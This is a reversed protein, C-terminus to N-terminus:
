EDPWVPPRKEFFAATGEDHEPTLFHGVMVEGAHDYAADLGMDREDQMARKGRAIAGPARSALRAAWDRVFGPLEDAPMVRNVLGYERATAADLTDGSLAMEMAHKPALSRSVAVMPTSCFGGLNVGPTCFTARDSVFALDASAVIQCGAATALGDVMAIVPKPSRVIAKMLASCRSFLDTFYARGGDADDRRHRRMEKLDHGACFVRGTSALVIVNVGPDRSAADITAHLLDIMPSSLPHAPPANFTVTLVKGDRATLLIPANVGSHEAATHRPAAPM